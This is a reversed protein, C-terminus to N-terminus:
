SDSSQPTPDLWMRRCCAEQDDPDRISTAGLLGGLDGPGKAAGRSRAEEFPGPVPHLGHVM